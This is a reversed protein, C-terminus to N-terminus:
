MFIFGEDPPVVIFVERADLDAVGNGVVIIRARFIEAFDQHMRFDNHFDIEFDVLTGPVVGYFTTMDKSDYGRGAVGDVYGEIATISKIFRTADVGDPNGPVNETRTTVDQPTGTTLEVVADVVAMDLGTGSSAIDFVLPTGDLRVAGTDRAIAEYDSRFSSTTGGSFIGIVRAGINNLEMVAEAYTPGGFSYANMGTPGNHFSYDGFMLIIPLAGPRFCPYGIRTAPEDPITPCMQDPISGGPWMLGTGTATSWLAPVYSEPGDSGGHCPLGEVAELIDPEGNPAGTIMGIDRMGGRPCTTPGAALSWEGLDQTPPIVPSLLYYPLDNGGGYGGTPYDDLGSSAFQVNPIAAEIGPIITSVLGNILGTREGGMSGTMDVLFAVDAVAINTGFRLTRMEHPGPPDGTVPDVYPLLVFFDTDPVRSTDDTPDTGAAHEVLDTFGDGDTDPNTPDSGFAVEDGDRLGDNDSDIDRFDPLGDGDSDVPATRIDLDGAEDIDPVGDNDSDTDEVDLLSDGDTDAGREHGDLINDNDSDPDRHNPLGDGDSDAPPDTGDILEDVDTVFDNDDDLDAFDLIGDGDTDEAGEVADPIGDGDADLDRFDPTGDMDSDVPPTLVDDDGAELADDIGDGDSDTDRFDPFGDGDTDVARDSGEDGNSITDGDADTTDVVAGDPLTMSSGGEDGCAVLVCCGSVLLGLFFRM